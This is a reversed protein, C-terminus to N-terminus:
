VRLRLVGFGVRISVSLVQQNIQMRRIEFSEITGKGHEGSGPTGAAGGVLGAGRNLREDFVAAPRGQQLGAVGSWEGPRPDCGSRFRKSSNRV